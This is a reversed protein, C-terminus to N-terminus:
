HLAYFCQMPGKSPKQCLLNLNPVVLDAEKIFWLMPNTSPSFSLYCKFSICSLEMCSIM